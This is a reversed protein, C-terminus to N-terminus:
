ATSSIVLSHNFESCKRTRTQSIPILNIRIGQPTTSNWILYDMSTNWVTVPMYFTSLLHCTWHYSCSNGAWSPTHPQKPHKCPAWCPWSYLGALRTREEQHETKDKGKLGGRWGGGRRNECNSLSNWGWRERGPECQREGERQTTYTTAIPTPRDWNILLFWFQKILVKHQWVMEPANICLCPMWFEKYLSPSTRQKSMFNGAPQNMTEFSIM